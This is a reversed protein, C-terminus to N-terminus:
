FESNQHEIVIVIVAAVAIALGAVIGILFEM